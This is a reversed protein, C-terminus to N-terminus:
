STLFKLSWQKLLKWKERWAIFGADGTPPVCTSSGSWLSGSAGEALRRFVWNRQEFHPKMVSMLVSNWCCIGWCLVSSFVGWHRWQPRHKVDTNERFLCRKITCLTLSGLSSSSSSSSILSTPISPPAPNTLDDVFTWTFLKLGESSSSESFRGQVVVVSKIEFSFCERESLNRGLLSAYMLGLFLQM